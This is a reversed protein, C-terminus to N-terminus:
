RTSKVNRRINDRVSLGIRIFHTVLRTVSMGDEAAESKLKKHLMPPIKLVFRGSYHKTPLTEKLIWSETYSNTKNNEM